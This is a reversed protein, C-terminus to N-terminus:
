SATVVIDYGTEQLEMLVEVGSRGISYVLADANGQESFSYV